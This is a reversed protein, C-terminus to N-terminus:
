FVLLDKVHVPATHNSGGKRCIVNVSADVRRLHPSGLGVCISADVVLLFHVFLDAASKDLDGLWCVAALFSLFGVVAVM